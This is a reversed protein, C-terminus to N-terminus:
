EAAPGAQKFTDADPEAKIAVVKKGYANLEHAGDDKKPKEDAHCAVCKPKADPYVAKYAKIEKVSAWVPSLSGAAFFLGVVVVAIKKFQSM